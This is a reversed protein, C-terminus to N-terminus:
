KVGLTAERLLNGFMASHKAALETLITEAWEIPMEQTPRPGFKVYIKGNTHGNAEGDAM